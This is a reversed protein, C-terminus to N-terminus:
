RGLRALENTPLSIAEYYNALLTEVSPAIRDL